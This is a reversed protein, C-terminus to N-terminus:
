FERRRIKAIDKRLRFLQRQLNQYQSPSINQEKYALELNREFSDVLIEREEVNDFNRPQDDINTLDTFLQVYNKSKFKKSPAEPGYSESSPSPTGDSPTPSTAGTAPPTQVVPPVDEGKLIRTIRDQAQPDTLAAMDHTAFDLESFYKSLVQENNYLKRQNASWNMYVPQVSYLPKGYLKKILDLDEMRSNLKQYISSKSGYNSQRDDKEDLKIDFINAVRFLEKKASMLFNIFVQLTNQLPINQSKQKKDYSITERAWNVFTNLERHSKNLDEYSINQSSLPTFNQVRQSTKVYEQMFNDSKSYLGKDDLDKAIQLIKKIDM